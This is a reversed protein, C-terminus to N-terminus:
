NELEKASADTLYRELAIDLIRIAESIKSSSM